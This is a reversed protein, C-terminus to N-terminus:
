GARRAAVPATPLANLPECAGAPPQAAETTRMELPLRVEFRAGEGPRSDVDLTGGMMRVLRATIALGLGTGGYRRSTSTSAQEFPELLRALCGPDMGIGTDVVGFVLHAREVRCAIGVRGHATFKVANSVLNGLVQRVRLPDARWQAPLAPDLTAELVLGKAAAAGAFMTRTAEVIAAPDTEICEIRMQGAEIRALDLIDDLLGRLLDGASQIRALFDRLVPQEPPCEMLGVEAFGLIANLPTRIEHSMSAIFDRKAQNATEAALQIRKLETIDFAVALAGQVEGEAVDPILQFLFQRTRSPDDHDLFEREYRPAEGRAIAAVHPALAEFSARGVIDRLHVGKIGVPEYGYHTAYARNAYRVCLDRDFTAVLGPIGDLIGQLQRENAVLAATRERVLQNLSSDAGVCSSGPRRLLQKLTDESRRLERELELRPSADSGYVVLRGEPLPVVRADVVLEPRGGGRAVRLDLPRSAGLPKGRAGMVEALEESALLRLGPLDSRRWGAMRLAVDNADVVHGEADLIWLALGEGVVHPAWTM